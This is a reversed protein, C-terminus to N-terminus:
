PQLSMPEIPPGADVRAELWRAAAEQHAEIRPMIREHVANMRDLLSAPLGQGGQVADYFGDFVDIWGPELNLEMDPAPDPSPTSRTPPRVTAVAADMDLEAIAADDDAMWRLVDPIVGQPDRCVRDYSTMHVRYRRMAIDRVIGFNSDWWVLPPSLTPPRDADTWGRSRNELAILRAMSAVCERWPRVTVLVRGLFSLDTRVLGEPFIKVAHLECDAPHLYVGSRPDPNTAYYIGDRLTSEFFGHPNAPGLAEKWDLPFRDGVVPFGAAELIQMWMSTGCRRMGTVVIM